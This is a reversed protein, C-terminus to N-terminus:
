LLPTDPIIKIEIGPSGGGWGRSWGGLKFNIGINKLDNLVEELTVKSTFLKLDTLYEFKYTDESYMGIGQSSSDKAGKFGRKRLVSLIEPIRLRKKNVKTEYDRLDKTAEKYAYKASEYGVDNKNLRDFTRHADMFRNYYVDYEAKEDDTSQECIVGMVQKIRQINENLNKLEKQKKREMAKLYEPHTRVKEKRFVATPGLSNPDSDDIEYINELKWGPPLNSQAFKMYMNFRTNSPPADIDGTKNVNKGYDSLGSFQFTEVRPYKLLYDKAIKILTSMVKFPHNNNTADISASVSGDKNQKLSAFDLKVGYKGNDINYRDSDGNEITCVYYNGDINFTVEWDASVVSKNTENALRYTAPEHSANGIQEQLNM